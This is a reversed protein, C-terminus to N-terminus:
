GTKSALAAAAKLATWRFMNCAATKVRASLTTSSTNETTSASLRPGALAVRSSSIFNRISPARLSGGLNAERQAHARWLNKAMGLERGGRIENSLSEEEM